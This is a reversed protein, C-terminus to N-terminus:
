CALDPTQTRALCESLLTLGLSDITVASYRNSENPEDPKLELVLSGKHASWAFYHGLSAAAQEFAQMAKDEGDEHQTNVKDHYHLRLEFANVLLLVWIKEWGIKARAIWWSRSALLDGIM